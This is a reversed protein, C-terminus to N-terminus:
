KEKLIDKKEIKFFGGMNDILSMGLGFYMKGDSTIIANISFSYPFIFVFGPSYSLGAALGYNFSPPDYYSLKEAVLGIGIRLYLNSYLDSFEYRNLNIKIRAKEYSKRFYEKVKDPVKAYTLPFILGSSIAAAGYYNKYDNIFEEVMLYIGLRNIFPRGIGVASYLIGVASSFALNEEISGVGLGLNERLEPLIPKVFEAYRDQEANERLIVSLSEENEKFKLYARAWDGKEYPWLIEAIEKLDPRYRKILEAVRKPDKEKVARAIEDYGPFKLVLSVEKSYGRKIYLDKTVSVYGPKEILLIGKIDENRSIALPTVGLFEDNLYVEAGSPVTEVKLVAESPRLKLKKTIVPGKDKLTIRIDEKKYHEKVITIKYDKGVYLKLFTPTRESHEKGNVIVRAGPPDTEIKVVRIAPKAVLEKKYDQYEEAKFKFEIDQIKDSTILVRHEGAPIEVSFLEGKIKGAEKGDIYVTAGKVLDNKPVLKLISTGKPKYKEKNKINTKTIEGKCSLEKEYAKAMDLFVEETIEGQLYKDLYEQLKGNRSCKGKVFATFLSLEETTIKGQAFASALYAKLKEVRATINQVIKIKANGKMVPHQADGSLEKVRNKVYDYLEGSEIWGDKNEDAKGKLAEVLAVTFVGGSKDPMERSIENGSSSTIVVQNNDVKLAEKEVRIERLPRGKVMSGSYCADILWVIKVGKPVYRKLRDFPVWTYEDEPDADSPIFYFNGDKSMGHGAYYFILSDSKKASKIWKKFKSMFEGFTPNSLVEIKSDPIKSIVSSLNRADKEALPLDIVSENDYQSEYVILVRIASFSTVVFSFMLLIFVLKKM